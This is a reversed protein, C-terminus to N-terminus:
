DHLGNKREWESAAVGAIADGVAEVCHNCVHEGMLRTDDTIIHLMEDKDILRAPQIKGCLDCRFHLFLQDHQRQSYTSM